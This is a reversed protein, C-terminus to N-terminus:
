GGSVPPLFAIDDERSLLTDWSAFEQNRSAVLSARFGTLQPFRAAYRDFLDALTAGEPIEVAEETIGTLERVRGFFLVKVRLNPLVHPVRFNYGSAAQGALLGPHLEAWPEWARLYLTVEM